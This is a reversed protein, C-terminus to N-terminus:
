KAMSMQPQPIFTPETVAEMPKKTTKLSFYNMWILMLNMPILISDKLTIKSGEVEVWNDLPEESISNLLNKVGVQKKLRLFIEIDFLWRSIFKKNYINGIIEKKFVKAGCQTDKIPLQLIFQIFFGVFNSLLNRVFSREIGDSKEAKRSGFVMTLNNHKNLKQTLNDLEELSTSLDADLFAVNDIFSLSNLFNAGTQVATAKGQNEELDIVYIKEENTEKLQHLMESTKDTSGDNVFCLYYNNNKNLFNSFKETELRNYENYAPIIIGTRKIM